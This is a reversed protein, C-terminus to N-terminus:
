RARSPVRSPQRIFVPGLALRGQATKEIPDALMETHGETTQGAAHPKRVAAM